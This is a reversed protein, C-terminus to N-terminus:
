LLRLGARVFHRFDLDYTILPIDHDICSQAVLCDALRAKYHERLLKARLFGAREWYGDHLVLLPVTLVYRVSTEAIVPNSLLETRVVPPLAAIDEDLAAKTALTARDAIGDLYRVFASTDVAIM